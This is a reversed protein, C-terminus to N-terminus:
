LYVHWAIEVGVSSERGFWVQSFQFSFNSGTVSLFIIVYRWRLGVNSFHLRYLKSIGPNTIIFIVLSLRLECLKVLGVPRISM